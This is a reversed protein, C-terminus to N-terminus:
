KPPLWRAFWTLTRQDRDAQFRPSKFGHGEGPYRVCATEVGRSKLVRYAVLSASPMCIDDEAGHLLLTPAKINALGDFVDSKKSEASLPWRQPGVYEDEWTFDGGELTMFRGHVFGYMAVGARFRGPAMSLARLTMYGGYSGGFIGVREGFRLGGGAASALHDIGSLIDGLDSDLEGQCGINAQSFRDGFGLTGRFLPMFVRYGAFLLHRYPYRTNNAAISREEGFGVAPGGHAHVLLPADARLGARECLLGTIVTGDAAQWKHKIVVLSSFDLPHPLNDEARVSTTVLPKCDMPKDPSPLAEHPPAVKFTAFYPFRRISETVVTMIRGSLMRGSPGAVAAAAAASDSTSPGTSSSYVAPPLYPVAPLPTRDAGNVSILAGVKTTGIVTRVWLTENDLWGWGDYDIHTNGSTLVAHKEYRNEARALCGWPAVYLDLHTTIPRESSWNALYAVHKGDPSVKADEVRGAGSTIHGNDSGSVDSIRKDFCATRIEAREAEEPVTNLNERWVCHRGTASISLHEVCNAPSFVDLFLQWGLSPSYATLKWARFPVPLIMPQPDEAPEIVVAEKLKEDDSRPPSDVFACCFLGEGERWTADFEHLDKPMEMLRRCICTEADVKHIAGDFLLLPGGPAAWVRDPVATPLEYSEYGGQCRPSPNRSMYTEYDQLGKGPSLIQWQGSLPPGMEDDSPPAPPLSNLLVLATGDERAHIHTVGILEHGPGYYKSFEELPPWARGTVYDM